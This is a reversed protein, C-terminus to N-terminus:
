CRLYIRYIVVDFEGFKGNKWFTMDNRKAVKQSALNEPLIMSVVQDIKLKQALEKVAIAAESAYGNGWLKPLVHYGIELIQEGDIDRTMLGCQGIFEGTKKDEFVLLGTNEVSEYREIQRTIWTTANAINDPGFTRGVFHINPNNEFFTSWVEVDNLTLHRFKLRKSTPLKTYPM